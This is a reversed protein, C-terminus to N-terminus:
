PRLLMTGLAFSPPVEYHLRGKAHHTGHRDCWLKQRSTAQQVAICDGCPPEIEPVSRAHYDKPRVVLVPCGANRVVKEAVSGLALRELGKKGATGVIVLDARLSSALQTIERSPEGVALHGLIRGEFHGAAYASAGDLVGRGEEVLETSPVLPGMAAVAAPPAVGLVHILHLEAAGPLTTGLDCAVELVRQASSAGDLAVIYVTPPASLTEAKSTM